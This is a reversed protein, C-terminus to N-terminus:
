VIKYPTAITGIKVEGSFDYGLSKICKFVKNIINGQESTLNCVLNKKTFNYKLNEYNFARHFVFDSASTLDAPGSIFTINIGYQATGYRQRTISFKWKGTFQNKIATRIEQVEDNSIYPM